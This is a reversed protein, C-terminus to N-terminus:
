KVQMTKVSLPMFRSFGSEIGTATFTAPTGSPAAGFILAGFATANAGTAPLNAFASVPITFRGDGMPALCLFSGSTKSDSDNALGMILAYQSAPDGGSWTLNIPFSRDIQTIQDRNTWVPVTTANVRAQFAGVDKGGNGSVTYLGPAFYAPQSPSLGLPLGGGVFALYSGSGSDSKPVSKTGSPGTISLPTGADLYKKTGGGPLSATSGGLLGLLDLDKGNNTSCSGLPPLSQLPNFGTAGGAPTETFSVSVWDVSFVNPSGGSGSLASDIVDARGLLISGSKGGSVPLGGSPTTNSCKQGSADIAMTVQNSFTAGVQVQVPVYCGQPADNPVYFVLQDVGSCCPTRGSYLKTALKGGVFIQVDFPLDGAAPALTDSGSIPGLGTGWLIVAQGPKAPSESTNLPQDDPTIFNQIIGPGQGGATSFSGFNNMVVKVPMPPSTLGNYTVTMTGDGTPANSPMIGNIQSPAVFAPIADVTRGQATFKLSVGGLTTGLPFSTVRATAPPGLNSGFISFFSGQAIAGAPLSAPLYSAANVVGSKTILPTNNLNAAEQNVTFKASATEGAATAVFLDGSRAPGKNEAITLTVRGVGNGTKGSPISIWDHLNAVYRPCSGDSPTIDFSVSGGTAPIPIANTSPSVRFTCPASGAQNITFTASSSQNGVTINASRAASSNLAANLTVTGNGTGGLGSAVTVWPPSLVPLTVTWACTSSSPNVLFTTTGGSNSIPSTNTTPNLAFTCPAGAAQTLTVTRGAVTFTGVRPSASPNLPVSWSASGNGTRTVGSSGVTIWPFAPNQTATWTCTPGTFVLVINSAGNGGAPVDTPSVNYDCGPTGGGGGGGPTGGVTVRVNDLAPGHNSGAGGLSSFELTTNAGTATFVFTKTTWGMNSVSKGSTDFTFDQSSGGAAVRMSKVVAGGAPNGAMDFTATYNTGPTTAFTQAIAGPTNGDLDISYRGESPSFSGGVYDVNDKTVVWGTIFTSNKAVNLTEVTGPLEFGGNTFSGVTTGGGGTGGVGTASCSSGQVPLSLAAAQFLLWDTPQDQKFTVTMQTSQPAQYVIKYNIDQSTSDGVPIVQDTMGDIHAILKGTHAPDRGAVGVHLTLTRQSQDAPATFQFGGYDIMIAGSQTGSPQPQTGDTWNLGRQDGVYHVFPGANNSIGFFQLDGLVKPGNKRQSAVCTQTGQISGTPCNSSSPQSFIGIHYWDATGESTLNFPGLGKDSTINIACTGGGGVGGGGGGTVGSGTLGVSWTPTAGSATVGTLVLQGTSPQASTFTPTFTVPLQVSGGTPVTVLTPSVSFPASATPRVQFSNGPTSLTVNLTKPLNLPAQGFDLPDPSTRLIFSDGGGGGGGTGSSLILSINDAYGDNGTGDTRTFEIVIDIFRTGAPLPGAASKLILGTINNREAAFVPGLISPSGFGRLTATIKANDNQNQYGGLYASFTCIIGAASDIQSAFASVDITQSMTSRIVNGGAFFNQGRDPPGPSTLLPGGFAPGYACPSPDGTITWGPITGAGTCSSNPPNSAEANGNQVLNVNLTAAGGGGGGAVATITFPLSFIPNSSNNQYVRATWAGAVTAATPTWSSCFWNSTTGAPVSINTHNSPTFTAGNPGNLTISLNDGNRVGALTFWITINPDTTSFSTVALPQASTCSATAVKTMVPSGVLTAAGAGGGAGTVTFTLTTLTNTGNWVLRLSWTGATLALPDGAKTLWPDFCFSGAGPLAAYTITKQVQGSPNLWEFKALDGTLM